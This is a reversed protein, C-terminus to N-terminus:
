VEPFREEVMARYSRSVPVQEAGIIRLKMLQGAKVIGEVASFAVWHSRHVQMGQTSGLERIADSFRYLVMRREESTTVRVYHEQAEVWYIDGALPPELADLFTPKPAQAIATIVAGSGQNSVEVSNSDVGTDAASLGGEVSRFRLLLRPLFLLGCLAAHNDFLYILELFFAGVRSFSGSNGPITADTQGPNIGLEPLGLILDVSTIALTFPVLSLLMASLYQWAASTSDSFYREVFYLVAVFLGAEMFIRVSWYVYNSVVDAVGNEPVDHAALLVAVLLAVVVIWGEEKELATKQPTTKQPAKAELAKTELIAKRSENVPSNM